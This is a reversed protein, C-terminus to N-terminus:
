DKFLKILDNKSYYYSGMIKKYRIKGVIRLNQLTSPSIKMLERVAKSRLWEWDDSLKAYEAEEGIITKLDSLLETKFNKLDEKTLNEM